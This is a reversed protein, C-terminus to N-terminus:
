KGKLSKIYKKKLKNLERDRISTKIDDVIYKITENKSYYGSPVLTKIKYNKYNLIIYLCPDDFLITIGKEKLLTAFQLEYVKFEKYNRIKLMNYYYDITHFLIPFNKKLFIREKRYFIDQLYKLM